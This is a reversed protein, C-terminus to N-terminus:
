AQSGPFSGPAASASLEHEGVASEGTVARNTRRSPKEEIMVWGCLAGALALGACVLAVVRFGSVFSEDIAQKLSVHLQSPIGSPLQIAALKVRQVDILHRTGPSLPLHALHNDLSSNFASIIVIGLVAIALVGGVRAVANNIASAIGAHRQEVDGMVLTTMPATNLAMGLGMVLVAPFFTVWYVGGVTPVAFLAMGIGTVLPGVVLPLRVGFRDTLREARRSLLFMLLFYPMLVAGAAVPPYGQVQILNFPLLFTIGVFAAYL